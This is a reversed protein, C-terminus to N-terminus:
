KLCLQILNITGIINIEADRQPNEISQVLYGAALHFVYEPLHKEFIKDLEEKNRIDMEYFVAKSNVNEKSGTLLNDVVIVNYGLEILRDVLNSGIFGAGGTVLINM